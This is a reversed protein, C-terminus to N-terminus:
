RSKRLLIESGQTEVEIGFGTRLLQIFAETHDARFLGGVRVESLERDAIVFRLGGREGGHENLLAVAERLPTRTFELRPARWALRQESEAASIEIARDPVVPAARDVVLLKGADLTAVRSPLTGPSDISPPRPMGEAAAHAVAVRGETVLVEVRDRELQVVFETGVARVNVGGAEVVFPRAADPAVQFHAEGGRLVVHRFEPGFNMAIAAGPRLEVTSGDPLRERAPRHVIAEHTPTAVSVSEAPPRLALAAISVAMAGSAAAAMLRQRRRRRAQQRTEIQQLFEATAGAHFPQDLAAWASEFERLARAHAPKSNWADFERQEAATLGADRRAAWAAAADRASAGKSKPFLSM